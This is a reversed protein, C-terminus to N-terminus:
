TSRSSKLPDVVPEAVGPAVGDEDRDGAGQAPGAARGVEDPAQSAVLEHDEEGLRSAVRRLRGEDLQAGPEPPPLWPPAGIVALM